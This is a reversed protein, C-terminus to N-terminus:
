VEIIGIIYLSILFSPSPLHFTLLIHISLAPLLSHTLISMMVLMTMMVPMTLSGSWWHSLPAYKNNRVLADALVSMSKPDFNLDNRRGCLANRSSPLHHLTLM